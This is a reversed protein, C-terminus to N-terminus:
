TEVGESRYVGLARWKEGIEESLSNQEHVLRLSEFDINLAELPSLNGYPDLM